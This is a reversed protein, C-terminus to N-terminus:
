TRWTSSRWANRLCLGMLGQRSWVPVNLFFCRAPFPIMINWSGLLSSTNYGGVGVGGLPIEVCLLGGTQSLSWIPQFAARHDRHQSFLRGAARRCHKEPPPPQIVFGPRTRVHLARSHPLSPPLSPPLSHTHLHPEPILETRVCPWCLLSVASSDTRPSPCPPLHPQHTLCVLNWGCINPRGFLEKWNEM